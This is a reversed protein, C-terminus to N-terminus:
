RRTRKVIRRDEQSSRKLRETGVREDGGNLKEKIKCRAGISGGGAQDFHKSSPTEVSDVASGDATYSACSTSACSASRERGHFDRAVKRPRLPCDLIQAAGSSLTSSPRQQQQQVVTLAPRQPQSTRSSGSRHPSSRYPILFQHQLATRADIRRAPDCQLMKKLLDIGDEELNRLFSDWRQPPWQPFNSRWEPTELAGLWDDSSSANAVSSGASNENGYGPTGLAKFIRHLQDIDCDGRFLIHGSAMEAVICAASWVDVGCDYRKHGLLLEPSRYYRTVVQSVVCVCARLCGM